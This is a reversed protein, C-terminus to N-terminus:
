CRSCLGGDRCSAPPLFILQDRDRRLVAGPLHGPSLGEAPESSLRDRGLGQSSSGAPGIRIM